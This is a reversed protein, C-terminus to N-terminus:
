HMRTGDPPNPGLISKTNCQYSSPLMAYHQVLNSDSLSTRGSVMLRPKVPVLRKKARLQTVDFCIIEEETKQGDQPYGVEILPDVGDFVM